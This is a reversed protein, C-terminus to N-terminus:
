KLKKGCSKCFLDKKGVINSCKSCSKGIKEGCCTCYLSDKSNSKGCVKCTVRNYKYILYLIVGFMNTVFVVATWLIYNVKSKLANQYVASAVIIWYLMGMFILIAGAIKFYLNSYPVPVVDCLIVIRSNDKKSNIYSVLYKNNYNNSTFEDEYDEDEFSGLFLNMFLKDKKVLKYVNNQDDIFIKKDNTVILNNDYINNLSYAIQNDKIIAVDVVDGYKSFISIRDKLNDGFGNKHYMEKLRDYQYIFGIKNKYKAGLFASILALIIMLFILYGAILKKFNIKLIRNNM